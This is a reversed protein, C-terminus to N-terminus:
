HDTTDHQQRLLAASAGADADAAEVARRVRGWLDIEWSADFGAQYLNFPESLTGILQDRNSAGSGLADILRTGAGNESQRQRTVGASANVQPLQQAATTNRQVRSQAFRLAATRLDPNGALVMAQLRDLEPDGFASWDASATGTAPAQQREAGLLAPSGGHWASWDAPARTDPPKHDPGVACGAIALALALTGAARALPFPLSM